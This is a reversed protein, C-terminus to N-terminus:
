DLINDLVQKQRKDTKLISQVIESATWEQIAKDLLKM